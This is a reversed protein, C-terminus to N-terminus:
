IWQSYLVDATPERDWGEFFILETPVRLVLFIDPFGTGISVAFGAVTSAVTNFVMVLDLYGGLETKM